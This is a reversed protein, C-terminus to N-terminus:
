ACASLTSVTEWYQEFEGNRHLTRLNLISQAGADSWRMGSQKLRQQVIHRAASEVAGSGIPLKSELAWRYNLRDENELFYRLLRHPSTEGESNAQSRALRRLVTFFNSMEGQKLQALRRQWWRSAKEKPWLSEATAYLHEAAHYFDLLQPVGPLQLEVLNWIWSAGDGLVLRFSSEDMERSQLQNWLRRGFEEANERGAVYFPSEIERVDYGVALKVDHWKLCHKEADPLGPIMVADIALCYVPQRRRKSEEVGSAMEYGAQLEEIQKGHAKSIREIDRGTCPSFGLTDSLLRASQQYALELATRCVLRRLGPTIGSREIGLRKDLPVETQGCERCYYVRRAVEIPGCVTQLLKRRRGLPKMTQGCGACQKIVAMDGEAFREAMLEGAAQQGVRRFMEEEAGCDIAGNGPLPELELEELQEKVAEAIEM